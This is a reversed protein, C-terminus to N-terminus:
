RGRLHLRVGNESRVGLAIWQCRAAQIELSCSKRELSWHATTKPVIGKNDVKLWILVYHGRLPREVSFAM